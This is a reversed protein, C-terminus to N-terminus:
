PSTVPARSSSRSVLVGNLVESTLRDLIGAPAHITLSPEGETITLDGGTELVVLTVDDDIELTSSSMPGIPVCGTFAVAV